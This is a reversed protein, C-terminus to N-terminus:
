ILSKELPNIAKRQLRTLQQCTSEISQYEGKKMPQHYRSVTNGLLVEELLHEELADQFEGKTIDENADLM